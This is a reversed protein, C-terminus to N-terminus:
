STSAKSFEELTKLIYGAVAYGAARALLYQTLPHPFLQRAVSPGYTAVGHFVEKGTAGLVGTGVAQTGIVTPEMLPASVGGVVGALITVGASKACPQM